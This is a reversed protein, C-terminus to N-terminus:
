MSSGPGPGRQAAAAGADAAALIREEAQSALKEVAAAADPPSLSKLYQIFEPELGPNVGSLVLVIPIAPKEIESLEAARARWRSAGIALRVVWQLLLGILLGAMVGAVFLDADAPQLLAAGLGGLASGIVIGPEGGNHASAAKLIAAAQTGPSGTRAADRLPVLTALRRM